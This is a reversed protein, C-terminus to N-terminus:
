SFLGKNWGDQPPDDPKPSQTKKKTQKAIFPDAQSVEKAEFMGEYNTPWLAKKRKEYQAASIHYDSYCVFPTGNYRAYGVGLGSIQLISLKPNESIAHLDTVRARPVHETRYTTSSDRSSRTTSVQIEERTGMLHEMMELDDNANVSFWQRVACSGNVAHFVKPSNAKLDSLSQNCLVLGIDHSRAMQLMQDLNETAMRQFEDIVVHVKTKREATKGAIILFFLILRAISPAGISATTSPLRFYAVGPKQFFDALQIQNDIISDEYSGDPIVNLEEYSALRGIVEMSHVGARRLEPLLVKTDDQLLHAVDSYLQRFSMANPNALNAERIVASNSSTFFSRGYEFGYALGCSTCLIDTRELTSLRTWGTTLFPNFLHTKTGNEMSFVKLPIDTDKMARHNSVAKEAAHFLEPSDAKLDIVIVSADGFSILQEILPALAMSSKNNGTAGLVHIHQFCLSRDMMVPSHDAAVYGLFLANQEIPNPSQRMSKVIDTWAQARDGIEATTRVQAIVLCYISLVMAFPVLLWAAFTGIHHKSLEVFAITSMAGVVVGILAVRSFLNGAPSQIHGPAIESDGPYFLFGVIASKLIRYTTRYEAHIKHCGLVFAMASVTWLALLPFLLGALVMFLILLCFVNWLLYGFLTENKEKPMRKAIVSQASLIVFHFGIEIAFLAYIEAYVLNLRMFKAPYDVLSVATTVGIGIAALSVLVFSYISNQILPRMVIAIAFLAILYGENPLVFQNFNPQGFIAPSLGVIIVVQLIAAVFGVFLANSVSRVQGFPQPRGVAPLRTALQQLPVADREIPNDVQLPPISM